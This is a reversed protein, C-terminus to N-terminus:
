AGLNLIDFFLVGAIEIGDEPFLIIENFRDKLVLSRFNSIVTADESRVAIRGSPEQSVNVSFVDNNTDSDLNDDAGISFVSFTGVLILLVLLVKNLKLFIVGKNILEQNM